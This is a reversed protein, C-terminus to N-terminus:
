QWWGSTRSAVARAMRGVARKVLRVPLPLESFREALDDAAEEMLVHHEYRAELEERNRCLWLYLDTETRGPFEKLIDRQRIIDIILTYRM